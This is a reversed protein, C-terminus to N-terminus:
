IFYLQVSEKIRKKTEYIIYLDVAKIGNCSSVHSLEPKGSHYYIEEGSSSLLVYLYVYITADLSFM